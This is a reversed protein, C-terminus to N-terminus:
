KDVLTFVVKVSATVNILGAKFLDQTVDLNSINNVETSVNFPNPYYNNSVETIMVPKGVSMNLVAAMDEAKKKAALLADERAMVRTEIAKTSSLSTNSIYVNEIRILETTIDEYIGINPTKFIVGNTVTFYTGKNGYTDRVKAMTIGSTIIDKDDINLRKLAALVKKTSEDNRGKANMLDADEVNISIQMEMMDPQIKIEANGTVEIVPPKDQSKIFFPTFIFFFLLIKIKNM